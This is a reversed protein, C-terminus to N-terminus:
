RSNTVQAPAIFHHPHWNHCSSRPRTSCDTARGNWTPLQATAAKAFATANSGKSHRAIRSAPKVSCRIGDVELPPLIVPLQVGPGGLGLREKQCVVMKKAQRAVAANTWGAADLSVVTTLRNHLHNSGRPVAEGNPVGTERKRWRHNALRRESFCIFEAILLVCALVVHHQARCSIIAAQIVVASLISKSTM